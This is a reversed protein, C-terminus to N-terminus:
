KEGGKVGRVLGVIAGFIGAFGAGLSKLGKGVREGATPMFAIGVSVILWDSGLHVYGGEPAHKHQELRVFGGIMVALGVALFIWQLPTLKVTSEAAAVVAQSARQIPTKRKAVMEAIEPMRRTFETSTMPKSPKEDNM